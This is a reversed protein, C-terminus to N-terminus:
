WRLYVAAAAVAAHSSQRDGGGSGGGSGGGVSKLTSAHRETLGIANKWKKEDEGVSGVGLVWRYLIDIDVQQVGDPFVRDTWRANPLRLTEVIVTANV